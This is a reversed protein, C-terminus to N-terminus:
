KYDKTRMTYYLIEEYNTRDYSLAAIWVNSHIHALNVVDPLTLLNKLFKSKVEDEWEVTRISRLLFAILANHNKVYDFIHTQEIPWCQRLTSDIETSGDILEELNVEHKSRNCYIIEPLTNLTLVHVLNMNINCVIGEIDAPAVHNDFIIEGIVRSLNLNLIELPTKIRVSEDSYYQLLRSVNLIFSFIRHFYNVEGLKMIEFQKLFTKMKDMTSLDLSANVTKLHLFTKERTLQTSLEISNLSLCENFILDIAAIDKGAITKHLRLCEVINKLFGFYGLKLDSDTNWIKTLINFINSCIDHNTALSLVLDVVITAQLETEAYARLYKYNIQHKELLVRVVDLSNQQCVRNENAFRAIINTIKSAEFGVAAVKKIREVTQKSGTVNSFMQDTQRVTEELEYKIFIVRLKQKTQNYQEM